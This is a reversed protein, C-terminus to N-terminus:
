LKKIFERSTGKVRTTHLTEGELHGMRGEQMRTKDM